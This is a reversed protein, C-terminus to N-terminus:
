IGLELYAMAFIADIVIVMFISQVVSATTRRGLSEVDGGVNLGQRCGIIAIVVAFVPAKAMGAWFHILPVTESTRAFFFGPQFGLVSWIVLMGGIMGAMMAVFTMLPAMLVIAVVRPAVLVDYPDLGMVQMADIEQQMRMAGIQATFASDSRGALMIATILVGFERLVAISVLEVAFVSAGFNALQNLGIYAVVAGIFFALLAIIPLANLGAQEMVNVTATWRFKHPAIFVKAVAGLTRGFFALSDYGEDLAAYLGRGTRELLPMIGYERQRRRPVPEWAESVQNILIGAYEHEGEVRPAAKGAPAACRVLMLAGSTDLRGLRSVDIVANRNHGEPCLKEIDKAVAALTLVTWDGVPVIRTTDGDQAVRLATNDM